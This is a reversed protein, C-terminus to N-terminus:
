YRRIKKIRRHDGRRDLARRQRLKGPQRASNARRIAEVMEPLQRVLVESAVV